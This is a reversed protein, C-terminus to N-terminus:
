NSLRTPSETVGYVTSKWVGRDMPNGLCSYQLPNSNGEEPSRRSGLILSVDGANAHLGVQSYNGGYKLHPEKSPVAALPIFDSLFFQKIRKLFARGASLLLGSHGQVRTGGCVHTGVCWVGACAHPRCVVCRCVRSANEKM